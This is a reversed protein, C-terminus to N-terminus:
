HTAAAAPEPIAGLQQMFSLMDISMWHEVIKEGDVRYIIMFPQTVRRQTPALGAFDGTHTGIFTARLAVRDEEAVMDEATIEYRPFGAEIVAVHQALAEDSVFRNVLEPTKAEGSLADLYRRIVTKNAETSM